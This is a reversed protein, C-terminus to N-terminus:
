PWWWKWDGEWETSFFTDVAANQPLISARLSKNTRVSDTGSPSGVLHWEKRGWLSLTSPSFGCMWSRKYFNRPNYPVLSTWLFLCVILCKMRVLYSDSGPTWGSFVWFTCNKWLTVSATKPLWWIFQRHPFSTTWHVSCTWQYLAFNKTSHLHVQDHQLLFSGRKKSWTM